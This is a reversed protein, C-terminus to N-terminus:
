QGVGNQIVLNEFVTDSGEGSDCRIVRHSGNGDIITTPDNNADVAGRITVAKGEPNITSTITFTGAAILVTGGSPVQDIATQIDEGIAVNFVQSNPDCDDPIGDGDADANDDYDPCSDCANPVEDGDDDAFDNIGIADDLCTQCETCLIAACCGNLNIQSTSNLLIQVPAAEGDTINGCVATEWLTVNSGFLYVASGKTFASNSSILCDTMTSSCNEKYMGGGTDATNEVFKCYRLTTTSNREFMGGGWSSAANAKFFCSTLLPTSNESIMGGGALNSSNEEFVCSTLNVNNSDLIALGGGAYFGTNNKFNCKNLTLTSNSSYLGGGAYAAFNDIFDCNTLTVVSDHSYLGAGYGKFQSNTVANASFKCNTLTAICGGGIHVGGGLAHADDGPLEDASNIWNNQILCNNMILTTCTAELGAGRATENKGLAWYMRANQIVLNEITVNANGTLHVLKPRVFGDFIHIAELITGPTGDAHNTGRITIDKDDVMFSQYYAEASLQIIDGDQSADIAANISTHDCGFACVTITEATATSASVLLGLTALAVVAFSRHM